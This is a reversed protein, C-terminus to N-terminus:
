NLAARLKGVQTKAPVPEAKRCLRASQAALAFLMDDEIYRGQMNM